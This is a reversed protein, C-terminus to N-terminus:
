DEGAGVCVGEEERCVYGVGVVRVEGGRVEWVM